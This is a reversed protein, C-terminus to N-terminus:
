QIVRNYKIVVIGSEEIIPTCVPRNLYYDNTSPILESKSSSIEIALTDDDIILDDILSFLEDKTIYKSCTKKNMNEM